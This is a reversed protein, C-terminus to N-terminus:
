QDLVSTSPPPEQESDLRTIKPEEWTGSINYTIRQAKELKKSLAQQALLVAVGAAPGGVIAGAVPLTADLRPSVSLVQDYTENILDMSGAILLTASPGSVELNNTYLYGADLQFNGLITDFALGEKYVDKFDLKLRRGLSQFNILGLIRALGPKFNLFRGRAMDLQAEGQLRQTDLQFPAGPWSLDYSLYTRSGSLFEKHLAKKLLKGMDDTTLTGKIWTTSGHAATEWSGQSSLDLLKGHLELRDMLQHDGEQQTHLELRGIDAGNLYLSES